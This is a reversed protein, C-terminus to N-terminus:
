LMKKEWLKYFKQWWFWNSGDGLNKFELDLLKKVVFNLLFNSGFFVGESKWNGVGVTL